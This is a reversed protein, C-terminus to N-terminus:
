RHVPLKQITFLYPDFNSGSGCCLQYLMGDYKKLWFIVQRECPPFRCAYVKSKGSHIRAHVTLNHKAAFCKACDACQFPKELTHTREHLQLHSPAAFEKSCHRCVLRQGGKKKQRPEKAKMSRETPDGHRSQVHRILHIERRFTLPCHDCKFIHCISLHDHLNAESYFLHSCYSCSVPPHYRENMEDDGEETMEDNREENMEEEGEYIEEEEAEYTENEEDPTEEEDEEKITVIIEESEELASCGSFILFFKSLDAM